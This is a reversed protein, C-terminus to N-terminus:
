SGEEADNNEPAAGQEQEGSEAQGDVNAAHLSGIDLQFAELGLDTWKDDQKKRQESATAAAVVASVMLTDGEMDEEEPIACNQELFMAENIPAIEVEDDSLMDCAWQDDILDLNQPRGRINHTNHFHSRKKAYSSDSM